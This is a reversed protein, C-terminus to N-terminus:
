DKCGNKKGRLLVKLLVQHQKLLGKLLVQHQGVWVQCGGKMLFKWYSIGRYHSTDGSPGPTLEQCNSTQCGRGDALQEKEGGGGGGCLM